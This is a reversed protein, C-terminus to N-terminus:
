SEDLERYGHEERDSPEDEREADASAARGGPHTAVAVGAGAVGAGAVGAAAAADGLAPNMIRRYAIVLLAALVLVAAAVAGWNLGTKVVPPTLTSIYAARGQAGEPPGFPMAAVLRQDTARLYAAAFAPEGSAEVLQRYLTSTGDLQLRVAGDAITASGTAAADSGAALGAAGDAATGVGDALTEAGATLQESGAALVGSGDALLQAGGAAANAGTALQTLAISVTAVADGILILGEYVGPDSTSGSTLASNVATLGTQMAQMADVLKQGIVAAAAIDTLAGIAEEVYGGIVIAIEQVDERAQILWALAARLAPCEAPEPSVSCLSDIAQQLDAIAQDAEAALAELEAIIAPLEQEIIVLLAGAARSVQTDLMAAGAESAVAIQYLTPTTSSDPDLPPDAPSGVAAAISSVAGAVNQIQAEITPVGSTGALADLGTAVSGLGSSLEGMGGTLADLGTTLEGSGAALEESGDAAADLGDALQASGSQLQTLGTTLESTAAALQTVAQDIGAVGSTLQTNGSVSSDLLTSAFGTTADEEATVPVVEMTLAPVRLDDAAITLTQQQTYDGLPPYLVLRWQVSTEGAPTTEVIAGPASVLTAGPPVTARLVDVYPAFVPVSRTAETGDSATYTIDELEATTNTETYTVTLEGSSRAVSDPDVAEGLRQYEAHLAIPLPKGFTSSTTVSPVAGGVSVLVSTAETEPVGRQGVYAIKTTSTPNILDRPEPLGVATVQDYLISTEPLGSPDLTSVVLESNTITPAPEPATPNRNGWDGTTSLAQAPTAVLIGLLVVSLITAWGRALASTM